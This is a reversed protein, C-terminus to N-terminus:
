GEQSEVEAHSDRTPSKKLRAWNDDSEHASSQRTSNRRQSRTVIGPFYRPESGSLHSDRIGDVQWAVDALTSPISPGPLIQSSAASGPGLYPSHTDGQSSQGRATSPLSAFAAHRSETNATSSITNARASLGPSRQTTLNEKESPAGNVSERGEDGLHAYREVMQQEELLTRYRFEERRDPVNTKVMTNGREGPVHFDAGLWQQKVSYEYGSQKVSNKALECMDV